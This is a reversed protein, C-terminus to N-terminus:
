INVGTIQIVFGSWIPQLWDKKQLWDAEHLSQELPITQFNLLFDQELKQLQTPHLLLQDKLLQMYIMDLLSNQVEQPLQKEDFATRVDSLIDM